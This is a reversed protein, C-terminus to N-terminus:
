LDIRASKRYQKSANNFRKQAKKYIEELLKKEQFDECEEYMSRCTELHIAAADRKAKLSASNKM